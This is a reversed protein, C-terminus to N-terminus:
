IDRITSTTVRSHPTHRRTDRDYHSGGSRGPFVPLTYPVVFKESLIVSKPEPRVSWDSDGGYLPYPDVKSRPGDKHKPLRTWRPRSTPPLSPDVISLSISNPQCVTGPEHNMDRPHGTGLDGRHGSLPVDVRQDPVFTEM